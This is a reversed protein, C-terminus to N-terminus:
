RTKTDHNLGKWILKTGCNSCYNANLKNLVDKCHPCVYYHKYINDAEFGNTETDILVHKSRPSYLQTVKVKDADMWFLGEEPNLSGKWSEVAVQIYERMDAIYVDEPMEVRVKFEKFM